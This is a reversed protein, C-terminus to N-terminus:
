SMRRFAGRWRVERVWHTEEGSRGDAPGDSSASLVSLQHWWWRECLGGGGDTGEGRGSAALLDDGGSRDACGFHGHTWGVAPSTVISRRQSFPIRRKSISWQRATGRTDGLGVNSALVRENLVLHTGNGALSSLQVPRQYKAEWYSAITM